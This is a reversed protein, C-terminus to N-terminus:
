CLDMRAGDHHSHALSLNLPDGIIWAMNNTLFDKAKVVTGDYCRGEESEKQAWKVNEAGM